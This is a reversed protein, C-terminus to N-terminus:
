AMAEGAARRAPAPASLADGAFEVGVADRSRWVVHCKRARSHPSIRLLFEDPLTEPGIGTLRAGGNSFNSVICPRARRGNLDYLTGSSNWEVRFMRRRDRQM